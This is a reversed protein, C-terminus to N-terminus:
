ALAKAFRSAVGTVQQLLTISLNLEEPFFPSASGHGNSRTM